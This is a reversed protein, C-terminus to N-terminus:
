AAADLMEQTALRTVLDLASTKPSVGATVEGRGVEYFVDLSPEKGALLSDLILRTARLNQLIGQSRAQGMGILTAERARRWRDKEHDVRELMIEAFTYMLAGEAGAMELSSRFGSVYESAEEHSLAQTALLLSMAKFRQNGPELRMANSLDTWASRWKRSAEELRYAWWWFGPIGPFATLVDKLEALARTREATSAFVSIRSDWFQKLFKCRNVMLAFEKQIRDFRPTLRSLMANATAGDVMAKEQIIRGWANAAGPPDRGEVLCFCEEVSTALRTIAPPGVLASLASKELRAAEHLLVCAELKTAATGEALLATARLKLKGSSALNLEYVESVHNM